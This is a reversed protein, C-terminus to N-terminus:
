YSQRGSGFRTTTLCFRQWNSQSGLSGASGSRDLASSAYASSVPGYDGDIAVSSYGWIYRLSAQVFKVQTESSTSFSTNGSGSVLNDVHLHDEHLYNYLYHLVYQFHYFLSASLAWYQKRYATVQSSSYNKWLNYRASATQRLSGDVTAYFRTIDIGRYQQHAGPSSPNYVGLSYLRLPSLWNGPTNSYYFALWTELRSYFVSEYTFSIPFASGGSTTAEHYTPAGWIESRTVLTLTLGRSTTATSALLDTM